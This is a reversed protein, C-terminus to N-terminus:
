LVNKMELIFVFCFWLKYFAFALKFLAFLETDKFGISLSNSKVNCIQSGALYVKTYPHM